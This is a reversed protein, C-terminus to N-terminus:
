RSKGTDCLQGNLEEWGRKFFDCAFDRPRLVEGNATVIDIDLPVRGEMRAAADRGAEIEKAKALGNLQEVTLGTDGIAVANVYHGGGGGLAESVYLSSTRFHNLLGAVWELGQEVNRHRDGCNSGLSLVVEM